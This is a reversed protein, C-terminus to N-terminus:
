NFGEKLHYVIIDFSREISGDIQFFLQKDLDLYYLILKECIVKQFKKFFALEKSTPEFRATNIYTTRKAM